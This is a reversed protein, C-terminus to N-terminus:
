TRNEYSEIIFPTVFILLQRKTRSTSRESFLAGIIPVSSLVPLGQQANEHSSEYIGGLVVTEEAKVIVQTVLQRTSIAPVGKYLKNSPRDQNIHLRMLIMHKPLLQPIVKLALVARKFVAGTGGSESVEQYPIEEGAEISAAKLNEAILSPSSILEAHGTKELANLKLEIPAWQALKTFKIESSLESSGPVIQQKSQFQIGLDQVFDNDVAIIRVNVLMQPVQVDLQKILTILLRHHELTDYVSVTNSREDVMLGDQSFIKTFQHSLVKLLKTAPLYQLRYTKLFFAPSEAVDESNVEPHQLCEEITVVHWLTGSKKLTLRNSRLLFNLLDTESIQQVDLTIRGKVKESIVIDAQQLKALSKLVEIVEVNKMQISLAHTQMSIIIMLGGILLWLWVNKM